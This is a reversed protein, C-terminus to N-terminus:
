VEYAAGLDQFKETADEDDPNVDPHMQKALKRYSKKIQNTTASKPVGLIKYFDRRYSFLYAMKLNSLICFFTYTM